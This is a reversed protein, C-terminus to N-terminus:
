LRDIAQASIAAEKINKICINLNDYIKAMNTRLIDILEEKVFEAAEGDWMGTSNNLENLKNILINNINQLDVNINDLVLGIQIIKNYDYRVFSTNVNEESLLRIQDYDLSGFSVNADAELSSISQNVKNMSNKFSEGFHNIFNIMSQHATLFNQYNQAAAQGTWVNPQVLEAIQASLKKSCSNISNDAGNLSEVISKSWTRVREPDYTFISM